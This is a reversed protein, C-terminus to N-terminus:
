EGGRQGAEIAKEQCEAYLCACLQDARDEEIGIRKINSYYFSQTSFLSCLLCVEGPKQQQVDAATESRLRAEQISDAQAAALDAKGAVEACVVDADSGQVAAAADLLQRAAAGTALAVAAESAASAGQVVEEDEAIADLRGFAAGTLGQGAEVMEPLSLLGSAKSQRSSKKAGRGLAAAASSARRKRGRAPAAEACSGDEQGPAQRGSAAAESAAASNGVETDAEEPVPPLVPQQAGLIEDGQGAVRPEGARAPLSRGLGAPCAAAAMTHRRTARRVPAAISDRGAADGGSMAQVPGAAATEAAGRDPANGRAIAQLPAATVGTSGAAVTPRRSRRMPKQRQDRTHWEIRSPAAAPSSDLPPDEDDVIAGRRRKAARVTESPAQASCGQKETNRPPLAPEAIEHHERLPHPASPEAVLRLMTAASSSALVAACEAEEMAPADATNGTSSLEARQPVGTARQEAAGLCSGMANGASTRRRANRSVGKGLKAVAAAAMTQRRTRRATPQAPFAESHVGLLDAAQGEETQQAKAVAADEVTVVNNEKQRAQEPNQLQRLMDAAAAESAPPVHKAGNLAGPMDNAPRRVPQPQATAALDTALDPLGTIDPVQLRAAATTLRRTRKAPAAAPPEAAQGSSDNGAAAQLALHHLAAEKLQAAATLDAPDAALKSISRGHASSRLDAAPKPQAAHVPITQPAWPPSVILLAAAPTQDSACAAPSMHPQAFLPSSGLGGDGDQLALSIVVKYLSEMSHEKNCLVWNIDHPDQCLCVNSNQYQMISLSVYLYLLLCVQSMCIGAEARARALALNHPTGQAGRGGKLNGGKKEAQGCGLCAM